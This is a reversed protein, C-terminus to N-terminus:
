ELILMDINDGFHDYSSTIVREGPELGELVEYMEPNQRGLRIHERRMAREGEADVVYVWNGGTKQYFGGRPLLVAQELDGLELKIHLTQGRRIAAPAVGDFEMDIEFRGDRVEPYVKRVVMGYTAEDLEIEGRQGKDIRAIYHEDIAARVKFEDLVDMQGLRESRGKSEGIEANLSTVQGTVPARLILDDLRRRMVETDRRIQEVAAERQEIQVAALLSDQKQNEITLERRKITREYEDAVTEYEIRAVLNEEALINYRKYKREASQIDYDLDLMRQRFNLHQQKVNLRQTRLNNIEDVLRTEQQMVELQLDPNVLRLLPTGAEVMSGEEVLVEEVRGAQRAELFVTKIPLVTGRVPIFEQFQGRQVQSITLKDREVNLRSTGSSELFGYLSLGVFLAALTLAAIKKPPWRRKKIKRDM